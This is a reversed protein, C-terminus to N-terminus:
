YIYIHTHFIPKINNTLRLSSEEHDFEVVLFRGLFDEVHSLAESCSQVDYAAEFRM